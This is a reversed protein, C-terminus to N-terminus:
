ISTRGRTGAAETVEEEDLGTAAVAAAAAVTTAAAAAAKKGEPAVRVWDLRASDGSVPSPFSGLFEGGSSGLLEPLLLRDRGTGDVAVAEVKDDGGVEPEGSDAEGGEARSGAGFLDEWGWVAVEWVSAERVEGAPCLPEPDRVAATPPLGGAIVLTALMLVDGLDLM